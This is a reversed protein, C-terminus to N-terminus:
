LNAKKRTRKGKGTVVFVFGGKAMKAAGGVQRQYIKASAGV